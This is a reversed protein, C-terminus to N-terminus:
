GLCAHVDDLTLDLKLEVKRHLLASLRSSTITPVILVSNEIVPCSDYDISLARLVVLAPDRGPFASNVIGSWEYERYSRERANLKKGDEFVVVQISGAQSELKGISEILADQKLSDVYYEAGIAASTAVVGALLFVQCARQYRSPVGVLLGIAVVALGLPWMLQVRSNWDLPGVQYNSFVFLCTSVVFVITGKSQFKLRSFVILAVLVLAVGGVQTIHDLPDFWDRARISIIGPVWEEIPNYGISWYPITALWVLTVGAVILLTQRKVLGGNWHKRFVYGIVCLLIIGSVISDLLGFKSIGYKQDVGQSGRFLVAFAFPLILIDAHRKAWQWVERKSRPRAKWLSDILPLVYFALLSPTGIALALALPALLRTYRSRGGVLLYWGLFFFFYSFSYEFTQVAYRAANIPVLIFILSLLKCETLSFFGSKRAIRFLCVGAGLMFMFVLVRFPWIGIRLLLPNLFPNIFHKEQGAWMAGHEAPTKNFYFVWDDWFFSNLFLFSWGWSITYLIIAIAWPFNNGSDFFRKVKTVKSDM